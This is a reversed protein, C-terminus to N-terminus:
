KKDQRRPLIAKGEAEGFLVRWIGKQGMRIAIDSLLDDFEELRESPIGVEYRWSEEEEREGTVPDIWAGQLPESSILSWGGFDEFEKQIKKHVRRPYRRGDRDSVPILVHIIRRGEIAENNQTM